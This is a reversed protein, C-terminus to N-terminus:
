FNLRNDLTNEFSRPDELPEIHITIEAENFQSKIKGEILGAYDHAQQVTWEGPTLLHLDIFRASGRAFM